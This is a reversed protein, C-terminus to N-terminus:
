RLGVLPTYRFHDLPSTCRRSTDPGMSVVVASPFDAVAVVRAEAVQEIAHDALGM